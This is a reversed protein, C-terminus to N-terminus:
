NLEHEEAFDAFAQLIGRAVTEVTSIQVNGSLNTSVSGTVDGVLAILIAAALRNASAAVETKGLAGINTRAQLQQGGQLTQPVYLASSSTDGWTTADTGPVVAKTSPGNAKLCRYKVGLYLVENGVEYDLSASYQMLGSLSNLDKELKM